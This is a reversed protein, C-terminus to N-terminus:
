AKELRTHFRKHNLNINVGDEIREATRLDRPGLTQVVKGTADEVVLVVWQESKTKM